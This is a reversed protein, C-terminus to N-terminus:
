PAPLLLPFTETNALLPEHRLEVTVSATFTPGPVTAAGVVPPSWAAVAHGGLGMGVSVAEAVTGAPCVIIQYLAAVPPETTEDGM